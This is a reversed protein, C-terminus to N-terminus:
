AVHVLTWLCKLARLACQIINSTSKVHKDPLSIAFYRLAGHDQGAVVGLPQALWTACVIWSMTGPVELLPESDRIDWFKLLGAHGATLVMHRGPDGAAGMELAAERPVWVAARLPTADARFHALLYLAAPQAGSPADPDLRWVAASGDWCASQAAALLLSHHSTTSVAGAAM